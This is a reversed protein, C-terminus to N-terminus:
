QPAQNEAEPLHHKQAAPPVPKALSYRLLRYSLAFLLGALIWIPLRQYTAVILEFPYDPYLHSHRFNKFLMFAILFVNALGGMFAGMILTLLRDHKRYLPLWRQQNWALTLLSAWAAFVALVSLSDDELGTWFIFTIFFLITFWRWKQYQLM